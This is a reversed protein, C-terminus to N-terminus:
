VWSKTRKCNIMFSSFFFFTALFLFLFRHLSHHSLMCLSNSSWVCVLGDNGCSVFNNALHEVRFFQIGLVKETRIQLYVIKGMFSFLFSLFIRFFFIFDSGSHGELKGCFTQTQSHFLTISNKNGFAFLGITLKEYKM